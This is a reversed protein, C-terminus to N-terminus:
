GVRLVIFIRYDVRVLGMGLLRLDDFPMGVLGMGLPMRFYLSLLLVWCGTTVFAVDYYWCTVCVLM